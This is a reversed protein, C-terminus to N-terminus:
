EPHRSPQQPPAAVIQGRPDGIGTGDKEGHQEHDQLDTVVDGAAIDILRHIRERLCGEVDIGAQRQGNRELADPPPSAADHMVDTRQHDRIVSHM